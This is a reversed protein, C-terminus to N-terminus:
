KNNMVTFFIIGAIVLLILILVLVIVLTNGVGKQHLERKIENSDIINTNDINNTKIIDSLKTALVEDINKIILTDNHINNVILSVKDDNIEIRDNLVKNYKVYDEVMPILFNEKFDNNYEFDKNKENSTVGSNYKIMLNHNCINDLVSFVSIISNDDNTISYIKNLENQYENYELSIEKVNGFEDTTIEINENNM